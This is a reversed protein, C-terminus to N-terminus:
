QSLSALHTELEVIQYKTQINTNIILILTQIMQISAHKRFTKFNLSLTRQVFTIIIDPILTLGFSTYM